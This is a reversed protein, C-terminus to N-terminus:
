MGSDASGADYQKHGKPAESFNMQQNRMRVERMYAQQDNSLPAEGPPQHFWFRTVAYGCTATFAAGLICLLVIVSDSLNPSSM